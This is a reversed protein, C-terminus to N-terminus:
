LLCLLLAIATIAIWPATAIAQWRSLILVLIVGSVSLIALWAPVAQYPGFRHIAALFSCLILLWGFIRARLRDPRATGSRGRGRALNAFGAYGFLAVELSM